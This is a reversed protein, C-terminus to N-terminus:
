APTSWSLCAYDERTLAYVRRDAPRGDVDLVCARLTGEMVFGLREAVRQAAINAPAIRVEVRNAGLQDFALRTIVRLAEAAYGRGQADTRTWGVLEFVRTRWDIRHFGAEGLFRGTNQEFGGFILRDGRAWDAQQHIIRAREEDLSQSGTLVPLWPTVNARSAEIAEWITRADQPRLPRLLLRKGHLVRPVRLPRAAAREPRRVPRAYTGAGVLLAFLVLAIGLHSGWSIQFSPTTVSPMGWAMDIVLFITAACGAVVLPVVEAQVAAVTIALALVFIFVAWGRPLIQALGGPSAAAYGGNLIAFYTVAAAAYLLWRLANSVPLPSRRAGGLAVVAQAVAGALLLLAVGARVAVLAPTLGRGASSIRMVFEILALSAVGAAIGTAEPIGRRVRLAAPVSLAGLTIAFGAVLRHGTARAGLGAYPSASAGYGIGAVRALGDLMAWLYAAVVASASLARYIRM